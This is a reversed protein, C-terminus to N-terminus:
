VRESGGNFIHIIFTFERYPKHVYLKICPQRQVMFVLNLINKKEAKLMRINM